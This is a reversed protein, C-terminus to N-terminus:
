EPFFDRSRREAEALIAIFEPDGHLTALDPDQNPATGVPGLELADSLLALARKRQGSLAFYCALNYAGLSDSTLEAAQQAAKRADAAREAKFLSIAYMACASQANGLECAIELTPLAEQDRGLQGLLVGLTQHHRWYNPMLAVAQRARTLAEENRGVTMLTESLIHFTRASAPDLSLAEELDRLAADTDRMGSARMFARYRLVWARVAPTLDDRELIRTHLAIAEKYKSDKFALYARYFDGYPNNPDRADLRALAEQFQRRNKPTPDSDLLEMLAHARLTLADPEAPFDRVLRETAALLPKIEGQRLAGLAASTHPSATMAPTGSLNGVYDYLKPFSVGLEEAVRRAATMALQSLDGSKSELQTGWLIRNEVTDVLSFSAHVGSDDRVVSGTLMRGAGVDCAAEARELVDVTAAFEATRPVPMVRLEPAEALNVAISEAFSRGLYEAGQAQGQVEMPVVVVTRADPSPGVINSVGIAVAAITAIAAVMLALRTRKRGARLGSRDTVRRGRQTVGGELEHAIRELDTVLEEMTQHRDPRAPALTKQVIAELGRPLGPALASPPVPQARLIDNLIEDSSGGSFPRKGTTMEYLVVGFSFVDSRADLPEGRVQEPSMYQPAGVLVPAAGDAGSGGWSPLSSELLRVNGERDIIINAPKLDRHVEGKGHVEALARTLQLGWTVVTGPPLPQGRLIRSLPQGENQPM